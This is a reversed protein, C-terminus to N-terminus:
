FEIPVKVLTQDWALNMIAEDPDGAEFQITFIELVQPLERTPYTARLVDKEANYSYAGWYDLDKNIVLTWKNESPITFLSYTGAKIKTGAIKVDKYFKIETAENAGTRWVQGYPVLQGFVERGKKQPRSYIVKVVAKEGAARDHAFNDPFYAIDLPSSDLGRFNTQATVSLSLFIVFIALALNKMTYLKM